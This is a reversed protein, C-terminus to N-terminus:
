SEKAKDPLLRMFALRKGDPSLAFAFAVGDLLKKSAGGLVPVQYITGATENKAGRYYYVYSGDPSFTLRTGRIPDWVEAPPVIQVNSGTAIHRVWISQQGADDVVHAVYKGDPSIAARAARGTSTLKVIKIPQPPAATKQGILKSLGFLGGTIAIVIAVLAIAAGRKHRKIEGILYEASSTRRVAAESTEVAQDIASGTLASARPGPAQSQELKSQIQIKERLERLDSLMEKSTQYREERDKRLAKSVIWQLEAPAEPLYQTLPAPETKLIAAIM